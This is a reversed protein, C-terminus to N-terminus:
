PWRRRRRARSPARRRAIPSARRMDDGAARRQRHLDRAQMSGRSSRVSARWAGASRRARELDLPADALRAHEVAIERQRREAAIELAHAGGREGIEALLRALQRDGLRRQQDRQRLRRFRAPGVFKGLRRPARARAHEVADSARPTMVASSAAGGFRSGIGVTAGRSGRARRAHRRPLPRRRGAAGCRRRREISARSCALSSVSALSLTSRSPGFSEAAITTSRCRWRRFGRGRRRRRSDRRRRAVARDVHRARRARRARRQFREDVRERELLAEGMGLRHQEVTGRAVAGIRRLIEVEAILARHGRALRQLHRQVQGRDLHEGVDARRTEQRPQVAGPASIASGLSM